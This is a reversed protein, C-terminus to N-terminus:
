THYYFGLIQKYVYELTALLWSLMGEWFEIPTQDANPSLGILDDLWGSTKQRGTATKKFVDIPLSAMAQASRAICAWVASVTMAASLTVTKGTANQAVYYGLDGGQLVLRQDKTLATAMPRGFRDILAIPKEM